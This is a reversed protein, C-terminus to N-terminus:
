VFGGTFTLTITYDGAKDGTAIVQKVNATDTRDEDASGTMFGTIDSTMFQFAGGGNALQIADALSNTGAKMHGGNTAAATVSWATGGTAIVAVQTSGTSPAATSM